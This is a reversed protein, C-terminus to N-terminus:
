WTRDTATPQQGDFMRQSTEMEFKNRLLAGPRDPVRRLWQETARRQEDSTPTRSVQTRQPGAEQPATHRDGAQPNRAADPQTAQGQAATREASRTDQAQQQKGQQQKGQQPQKGQQSNDAGTSRTQQQPTSRAGGQRQQGGDHASSQKQRTRQARQLLAQNFRADAHTPKLELARAYAALAKDYLGSKALANGRNYHGDASADQEYIRAAADYKNGRYLATARWQQSTFLDAAEDARGRTLAQMAQQDRRWWLDAWSTSRATSWEWAHASTPAFMCAVLLVAVVGQRFAYACFPLLLLVLWYGQDQWQLVQSRDRRQETAESTDAAASTGPTGAALLLRTDADDARATVYTGGAQRAAAALRAPELRAIVTTGQADTLNRPYTGDFSLAIPAGQETGIGLISVPFRRHDFEALDASNVIEDTVIVVIGHTEQGGQILSQALRLASGPDSGPVPMIAPELAALLNTLTRTDDTLPTVIHADGAYVILATRGGSFQQLLDTIEQRARTIRNPTVDAAYMSLSLDLLVILAGGPRQLPTPTRQWSPGSLALVAVFWVAAFMPLRQWRHQWLRRPRIPQAQLHVLLQADIVQRWPDEAPHRRRLWPLLVVLPALALLWAPRLLHPLLASLLDLM